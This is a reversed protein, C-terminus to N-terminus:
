SDIESAPKEGREGALYRVSLISLFRSIRQIAKQTDDSVSAGKLKLLFVSYVATIALEIHNLKIQEPQRQAFAELDSWAMRFANQYAIESEKTLMELHFNYLDNTLQSTIQLHGGASKGELRMMEALNEWWDRVELILAEDSLHYSPIINQDIRSMDLENARILDEVQWMYLIYEVINQRRKERAVIM